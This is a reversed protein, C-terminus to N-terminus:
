FRKRFCYNYHNSVVEYRKTRRVDEIVRRVGEWISDEASDDFLILGGPLLFRDVNVFDLHAVEYDHGGDVYAFSIPGGLQARQGFVDELVANESWLKFLNNSDTRISHPLRDRSFLRTTQVFSDAVWTGYGEKDIGGNEKRLENDWVDCTFFTHSRGYKQLTYVIINTSLGLFSGIEVVAGGEPMAKIAQELVAISDEALWGGIVNQLGQVFVDEQLDNFGNKPKGVPIIYFGAHLFVRKVLSKILM